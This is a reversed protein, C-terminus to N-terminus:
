FCVANDIQRRKYENEKNAFYYYSRTTNIDKHGMQSMILSDECGSDILTTAYTKRIKHMSRFEINCAKCAKRLYKNFQTKREDPFLDDNWPNLLKIQKIISVAKEPLIVYRDGMETKTYEVVEYTYIGDDNRYRIQQREVHLERDDLDSYKLAVLEGSRLGSLFCLAIGLNIANANQLLYDMLIRVESAKYVQKLPQKQERKFMRKSLELDAFFSSISLETMKKRKAYKFTGMIITRLGAYAKRKLEKEVITQKIFDELDCETIKSIPKKSLSTGAIFRNYDEVYRDYTGKCIEEYDMKSKAWKHFVTEFRNNNPKRNPHKYADVIADDLAERTNRKILRRGSKLDKCPVTTYWRGDKGQFISYKHQELYKTKDMSAIGQEITTRDLKASQIIYNLVENDTYKAM